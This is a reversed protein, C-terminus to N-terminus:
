PVAPATKDVKADGLIDPEAVLGFKTVGAQRVAAMVRLVLGYDLTRDALVYLEQDEQLKRNDVLKDGLAKLCPEFAAIFADEDAASAAPGLYTAMEPAVQLCDLIKRRGIRFVLDDSVQLKLKKVDSLVVPDSNVKPLDIQIQEHKEIKREAERLLDEAEELRDQAQQLLRDSDSKIEVTQVGAAVMFIILLVLMVDVLPTVNIENLVGRKGKPDKGASM